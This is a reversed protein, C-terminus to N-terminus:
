WLWFNIALEIAGLDMVQSVDSSVLIFAVGCEINLLAAFLVSEGFSCRSNPKM